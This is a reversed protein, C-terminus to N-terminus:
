LLQNIEERLSASQHNRAHHKEAAAHVVASQSALLTQLRVRGDSSEAQHGRPQRQDQLIRPAPWRDINWTACASSCNLASAFLALGVRVYLM